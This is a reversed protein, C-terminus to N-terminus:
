VQEEPEEKVTPDEGNKAGQETDKKAEAGVAEEGKKVLVEEKEEGEIKITTVEGADQGSSVKGNAESKREGNKEGKNGNGNREVRASWLHVVEGDLGIENVLFDTYRQKLTGQFGANHPCVYETIGARIERELDADIPQSASASPASPTSSQPAAPAIRPTSGSPLTSPSALRARKTPRASDTDRDHDSM